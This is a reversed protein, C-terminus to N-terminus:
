TFSGENRAEVEDALASGPDHTLRCGRGGVVGPAPLGCVCMAHVCMSSVRVGVHRMCVYMACGHRMRVCANSCVPCVCPWGCAVGHPAKRPAALCQLPICTPHCPACEEGGMLKMPHIEHHDPVHTVMSGAAAPVAPPGARVRTVTTPCMSMPHCTGETTM